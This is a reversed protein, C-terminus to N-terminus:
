EVNSGTQYDHEQRTGDPAIMLLANDDIDFRWLGDRRCVYTAFSGGDYWYSYLYEVKMMYPISYGSEPDVYGMLTYDDYWQEGEEPFPMTYVSLQAQCSNYGNANVPSFETGYTPSLGYGALISRLSEFDTHDFDSTFQVEFSFDVYVEPSNVRSAKWYLIKNAFKELYGFYRTEPDMYGSTIYSRDVRGSYETYSLLEYCSQDEINFEDKPLITIGQEEIYQMASDYVKGDKEPTLIGFFISNTLYAEYYAKKNEAYNILNYDTVGDNHNLLEYSKYGDAASIFVTKSPSVTLIDGNKCKYYSADGLSYSGASVKKALAVLDQEQEATLGINLFDYDEDYKFTFPKSWESELYMSGEYPVAKVKIVDGHHPQEKLNTRELESEEGNISVIYKEVARYYADNDWIVRGDEDLRLEPTPLVQKEFSRGCEECVSDGDEDVHEGCPDEYVEPYLSQDMKTYNLDYVLVEDEYDTDGYWAYKLVVGNSPDIWYKCKLTNIGKSDFCWCRVGAVTEDGIYYELLAAGLDEDEDTFFSLYYLLGSEMETFILPPEDKQEEYGESEYYDSLSWVGEWHSWVGKLYYNVHYSYTPDEKDIYTFQDGVRAVIYTNTEIYYHDTPPAYTYSGTYSGLPNAVGGQNTEQENSGQNNASQNSEQEGNGHNDGQGGGKDCGVAALLMLMALLIALLKKM